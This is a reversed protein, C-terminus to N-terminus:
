LSFPKRNFPSNLLGMIARILDGMEELVLDGNRGARREKKDMESDYITWQITQSHCVEEFTDRPRFFKM